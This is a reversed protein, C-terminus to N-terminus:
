WRGHHTSYVLNNKVFNPLSGTLNANVDIAPCKHSISTHTNNYVQIGNIAGGNWTFVVIDRKVQFNNKLNTSCVNYRIVLNTSTGSASGLATLLIRITTLTITSLQTMTSWYDIDFGRM